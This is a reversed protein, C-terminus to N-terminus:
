KTLVKGFIEPNGGVFHIKGENYIIMQDDQIAYVPFPNDNLVEELFKKNWKEHDERLYHPIINFDVLGLTKDEIKEKEIQYRDKWYKYSEIQKGLVISGASTGMIVKTKAYEKLIMDFGTEKFLKPLVFQKGGVIYIIDANFLRKRIEEETYARLNVFDIIGGIYKQINGLEQILWRKDKIESIAVYAENIISINIENLPKGVLRSVEEAIKDTTFGQSALILKM